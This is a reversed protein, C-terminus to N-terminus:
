KDAGGADRAPENAISAIALAPISVPAIHLDPIDTSPWGIPAVDLRVPADLAAPGSDLAVPEAVAATVARDSALSIHATGPRRHVAPVRTSMARGARVIPTAAPESVARSTLVERPATMRPLWVAAGALAAAAVSAAIWNWGTGTRRPREIRALVRARFGPPPEADLRARIARDIERDLSM